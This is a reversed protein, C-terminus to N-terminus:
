RNTQDKAADSAADGESLYKIIEHCFEPLDDPVRGTIVNGDLVAPIDQYDGGANLLDDRVAEYATVRRNRVMDTGCVRDVSILVQPGHCIAAVLKGARYSGALLELSKKDIRLYDPSFGGPVIFADADSPRVEDIRMHSYRKGDALVVIPVTSGFRGTIPKEPLYPRTHFHREKPLTAVLVSAGEESLRLLPYLVEIDEFEHAVLLCVRKGTLRGM